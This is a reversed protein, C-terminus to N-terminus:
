DQDSHRTPINADFWQKLTRAAQADGALLPEAPFLQRAANKMKGALGQV